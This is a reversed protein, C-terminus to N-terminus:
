DASRVDVSQIEVPDLPRHQANRPASVIEDAVEMGSTVEGFVSYQNDLFNSDAVVIFFQSSASDPHTSRAMSVVGRRHPINSFEAKIRQDSGGTGWTSPDGSKTNPDGGQVMFGPIVRHFKTGDYFGDKALDVFNRVHNPAVEPYFKISITGKSTNLDVITNELEELRATEAEEIAKRRDMEERVGPVRDWGISFIVDETVRVSEVRWGDDYLRFLAVGRREKMGDAQSLWPPVDKPVATFQAEKATPGAGAAMADVIGTVTVGWALPQSLKISSAVPSVESFVGDTVSTQGAVRLGPEWLKMEYAEEFSKETVRIVGSGEASDYQEVLAAAKPRSLTEEGCGLIAVIPLVCFLQFTSHGMSM